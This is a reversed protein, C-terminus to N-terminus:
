QSVHVGSCRNPLPASFSNLAISAQLFCVFRQWKHNNKRLLLTSRM